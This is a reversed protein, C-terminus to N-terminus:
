AARRHEDLRYLANALIHQLHNADRDISTQTTVRDYRSPTYLACFQEYTM